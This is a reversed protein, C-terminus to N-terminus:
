GQQFTTRTDPGQPGACLMACCALVGPPKHFFPCNTVLDIEATTTWQAMCCLTMSPDLNLSTAQKAHHPKSPLVSPDVTTCTQTYCTVPGTHQVSFHMSQQVHQMLMILHVKKSASSRDFNHPSSGALLQQWWVLLRLLNPLLAPQHGPTCGDLCSCHSTVTATESQLTPCGVTWGM